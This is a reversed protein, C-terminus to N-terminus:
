PSSGYLFATQLPPAAPVVPARRIGMVPRCARGRRGRPVMLEVYSFRLQMLAPQEFATGSLDTPPSIASLEVGSLVQAAQEAPPEVVPLEVAPTAAAQPAPRDDGRATKLMSVCTARENSEAWDLAEWGFRDRANVKAGLRILLGLCQIQGEAAAIMLATLNDSNRADIKAGAKELAKISRPKGWAAASMLPTTGDVDPAEIMWPWRACIEPILHDLGRAAAIHLLTQRMPGVLFDEWQYCAEKSLAEMQDWCSAEPCADNHAAVGGTSKSGAKKKDAM